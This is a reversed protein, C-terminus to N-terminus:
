LQNVEKMCELTDVPCFLHSLRSHALLANLKDSLVIDLNPKFEEEMKAREQGMKSRGKDIIMAREEAM